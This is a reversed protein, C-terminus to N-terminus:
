CGNCGGTCNCGKGSDIISDWPFGKAKWALIGGDLNFASPYGQRNLLNVIKSSRVGARCVVIITQEKYITELREIFVSM